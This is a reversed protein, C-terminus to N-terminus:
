YINDKEQRIDSIPTNIDIGEFTKKDFLSFKDEKYDFFISVLLHELGYIKRQRNLCSMITNDGLQDPKDNQKHYYVFSNGDFRNLRKATEMWIFGTSDQM